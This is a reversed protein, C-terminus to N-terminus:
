LGFFPKKLVKQENESSVLPVMTIKSHSKPPTPPLTKCSEFISQGYNVFTSYLNYPDFHKFNTVRDYDLRSHYKVTNKSSIKFSRLVTPNKQSSKKNKTYSKISLLKDRPYSSLQNPISNQM